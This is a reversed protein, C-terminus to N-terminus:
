IDSRAGASLNYRTILDDQILKAHLTLLIIQADLNNESALAAKLREELVNRKSESHVEYFGQDGLMSYALMDAALACADVPVNYGFGAEKLLKLVTIKIADPVLRPHLGSSRLADDLRRIERSRGFMTAALASFIM